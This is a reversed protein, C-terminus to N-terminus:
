TLCRFYWFCCSVVHFLMFSVLVTMSHLCEWLNTFPRLKIVGVLAFWPQRHIVKFYKSISQIQCNMFQDIGRNRDGKHDATGYPWHDITIMYLMLPGLICQWSTSWRLLPNLHSGWEWLMNEGHKLLLKTLKAWAVLIRFWEVSGLSGLSLRWSRM